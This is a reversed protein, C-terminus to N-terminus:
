EGILVIKPFIGTEDREWNLYFVRWSLHEIQECISIHFVGSDLLENERPLVSYDWEMTIKEPM